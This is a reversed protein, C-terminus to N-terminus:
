FKANPRVERIHKINSFIIVGVFLAVGIIDTVFGEFIMLIGAAVLLLRFPISITTNTYGVIAMAIAMTGIISFLCTGIIGMVPGELLLSPGYVFMFPLLFSVIGYYFAKTGVKNLDAKAVGAAVYSALAVPPTITSICGFYFVFLHAALLGAGMQVLAPTIVTALVLYAATTPLGMGLLLSIFMTFILAILLHGHSIVVILSALKTSLGTVSLIGSIIGAAACATAISVTDLAGHKLADLIRKGFLKFDFTRNKIWSHPVYVILLSLISYFAAKFPSYGMIMLVILAVIPLALPWDEKLVTSCHLDSFSNNKTVKKKKAILHVVLFISFFYLVAPLTAAKMIKVYPVGIISAMIFAAAGMVPPMIQGGTAAVAAVAGAEEKTYNEKVMMPITLSGTVAVVGAASGSLMGLLASFIISTKASAASLRKTLSASFRFLFDGTGFQSLFAGYICFLIIYNASVSIPLGYIGDSTTYLLTIIRSLSYHRTQLIGTLFPGFFPYILFVSSIVALVIGVSRRAAEFVVIMMLVGFIIDVPTTQGGSNAIDAYRALLYLSCSVSLLFFIVRAVADVARFKEKKTEKTLFVISIMALLHIIRIPMTSITLLGSVNLLHFLSIVIAIVAVCKKRLELNKVGSM